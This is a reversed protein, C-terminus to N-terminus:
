ENSKEPLDDEHLLSRLQELASKRNKKPIKEWLEIFEKVEEENM